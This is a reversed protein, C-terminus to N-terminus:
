WGGGGGGGRGGGSFGGGSSHGGGNSSFGSSSSKPVPLSASFTGALSAGINGVRSGIDTSRFSTGQHWEFSHSDLAIQTSRAEALWRDFAQAWPKEVGLAVAYPLLTEFHQPSMIPVGQMNMRDREALTLYQKLGAIEDMMRRGLPTPAGMLFYFLGNAIILSTAVGVLTSDPRMTTLFGTVGTVAILGVAGTAGVAVAIGLRQELTRANRMARAINAALMSVIFAPGALLATSMLTDFSPQRRLVIAAFVVLSLAVGGILYSRNRRYFQDRHETEIAARFAAGMKEIRAGSGRDVTIASGDHPMNRLIAAQGDPLEEPITNGKRRITLKGGALKLVLHGNVAMAIVSASFADWGGGRFGRKVIYNALAPSVGKPPTWCPVAVGPRPDRGVLLWAAFYYLLVLFAEGGGAIPRVFDAFWRGALTALSPSSISGQPIAIAITLGERPGLARLTEVRITNGDDNLEMRAAQENSGTTGTYYTVDTAAVGEPLRIDASSALIPFEWGNGTVNWYLEQHTPLFAVQDATRYVIEFTHVARPLLRDSRGIRIRLVGANREVTFPEPRGNRTVSAVQLWSEQIRGEEDEYRLPIDRFIGRRIAKREAQVVIRETITLTGDSALVIGAHFTHIEEAATAEGCIILFTFFVALVRRALDRGTRKTM